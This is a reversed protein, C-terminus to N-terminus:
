HIIKFPRPPEIPSKADGVDVVAGLLPNGFGAVVPVSLTDALVSNNLEFGTRMAAGLFSGQIDRARSSAAWMVNPLRRADVVWEQIANAKAIAHANTSARINILRSVPRLCKIERHNVESVTANQASTAPAAKADITSLQNLSKIGIIRIREASANARISRRVASNLLTWAQTRSVAVEHIPKPNPHASYRAISIFGRM